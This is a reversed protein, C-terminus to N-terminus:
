PAGPGAPPIQAPDFGYKSALEKMKGSTKLGSICDNWADRLDVDRKNFYQGPTSIGLGQYDWPLAVEVGADPNNKVYAFLSLEANGVGDIRGAVLDAIEADVTPYTSYKVGFGDLLSLTQATAGAAIGITKGSKGVDAWSHLNLPNGKKVLLKTGFAYMPQTAIAVQLREPSLNTGGAEMDWRGAAVGPILSDFETEIFDVKGIGLEKACSQAIEIEMGVLAGQADPYAWPEEKSYAIKIGNARVRDLAEGAEAAASAFVALAAMAVGLGAKMAASRLKAITM